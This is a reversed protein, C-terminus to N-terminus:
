AGDGMRSGLYQRYLTTAIGPREELLKVFAAVAMAKRYEVFFLPPKKVAAAIQRLQNVDPDYEGALLRQVQTRSMHIKAAFARESITVLRPLVVQAL